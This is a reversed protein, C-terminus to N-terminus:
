KNIIELVQDTSLLKKSWYVVVAEYGNSKIQDKQSLIHLRSESMLFDTKYHFKEKDFYSNKDRKVGRTIFGVKKNVLNQKATDLGFLHNLYYGEYKNLTSSTNIGLSDFNRIVNLPLSQFSRNNPLIIVSMTSVYLMFTITLIKM